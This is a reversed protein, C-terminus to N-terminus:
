VQRSHEREGLDHDLSLRDTSKRLQERGVALPTQGVQHGGLAVRQGRLAVRGARWRVREARRQWGSLAGDVGRRELPTLSASVARACTPGM